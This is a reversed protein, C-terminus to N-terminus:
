KALDEWKFGIQDNRLKYAAAIYEDEKMNDEDFLSIQARNPFFINVLEAEVDEQTMTEGNPKIHTIMYGRDSFARAVLIARHCESPDKEACMFTIVANSKEVQHVGDLFQKSKAFIEFDLRGNKYFSSDEQRAGFQRAFNYYLIGNEKLIRRLNEKDYAEFYSSYPSSRVDIVIQIGYEKLADIFDSIDLFGAYGITFIQKAM